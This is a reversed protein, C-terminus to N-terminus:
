GVVGGDVIQELKPGYSQWSTVADFELIKQFSVTQSAPQLHILLLHKNFM